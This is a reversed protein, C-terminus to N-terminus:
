DEAWPLPLFRQYYSGVSEGARDTVITTTPRILFEGPQAAIKLPRPIVTPEAPISDALACPMSPMGLVLAAMQITFVSSYSMSRM